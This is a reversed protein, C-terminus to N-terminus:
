HCKLECLSIKSFGHMKSGQLHDWKPWCCLPGSYRYLSHRLSELIKLTEGIHGFPGFDHQEGNFELRWYEEQLKAILLYYKFMLKFNFLKCSPNSHLWFQTIWYVYIEILIWHTDFLVVLSFPDSCFFDVFCIALVGLINAL